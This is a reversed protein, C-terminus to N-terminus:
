THESFNNRGVLKGPTTGKMYAGGSAPDYAIWDCPLAAGGLMGESLCVDVWREPIGNAEDCVHFGLRKWREVLRQADAPSMAGDRFLHEDYWVRGGILPAHDRLCGAWGGPYKAKIVHIPVLLDIFEQAVTM